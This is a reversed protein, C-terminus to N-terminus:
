NNRPAAAIAGFIVSDFLMREMELSANQENEGDTDISEENEESEVSEGSHSEEIESCVLM